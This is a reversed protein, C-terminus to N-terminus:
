PTPDTLSRIQVLAANVSDANTVFISAVDVTVATGGTDRLTPDGFVWAFPVNAQLTFTNDPSGSSNTKITINRDSNLFLGKLQSIDLTFEIAINTASAAITEDINTEAGGSVAISKNIAQGGNNWGRNFNHTFAM